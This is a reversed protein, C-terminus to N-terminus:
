SGGKKFRAAALARIKEASAGPVGRVTQAPDGEQATLAEVNKDIGVYLDGPVFYELYPYDDTNLPVGLEAEVFKAIEEPGLIMLSLLQEVSDIDISALDAAVAPDAFRQQMAAFDAQLADKRAILLAHNRVYWITANPFVAFFTKLASRVRTPSIQYLPLWQCVIGGDNLRERIAQYYEQTYLYGVRSVKPHIPDATILDYHVDTASLYRRGDDIRVRIAPNSLIDGNVEKLAVQAARIEPSLEIVDIEEIGPHKSLSHLTIGMGLGIVLANRPKEVFMLPLHAKLIFHRLQIYDNNAEVNGGIVLSTIGSPSRVVDITNQVGDGHYVIETGPELHQNFNLAVRYPLSAGIAALVTLGVVAGRLLPDAFPQKPDERFRLYLGACAFLLGIGIVSNREGVAPIAVFAALLSGAIAGATNAFYLTGTSSAIHRVNTTYVRLAVPFTAGILTTPIVLLLLSVLLTSGALAQTNPLLQSTSALIQAFLPPIANILLALVLVSGSVGLALNAFLRIPNPHEDVIRSVWFSGAVIGLLFCALMSSFAYVTASFSMVLIRTWVVELAFSGTGCVFVAVWAAKAIQRRRHVGLEPITDLERVAAEPPPPTLRSRFSIGTCLAGITLNVAATCLTSRNMGLYPLLAFGSVLTGVLAGLTNVAYFYAATGGLTERRHIFHRMVLPLTAGMMTTPVLLVAGSVATRILQYTYPYTEPGFAATQFFPTLFSLIPQFMLAFVGIGLEALGYWLLPMSTRDGIRGGILSGLALGGMFTGLTIPVGYLDSGLFLGLSRMWLVQYVLGASGSLMFLLTVAVFM